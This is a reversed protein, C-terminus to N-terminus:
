LTLSTRVEHEIIRGQGDSTWELSATNVGRLLVAEDQCNLIRNGVVKFPLPMKANDAAGSRAASGVEVAAAIVFVM